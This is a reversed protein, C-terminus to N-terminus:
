KKNLFFKTGKQKSNMVAATLPGIADGPAIPSGTSPQKLKTEYGKLILIYGINYLDLKLKSNFNLTTM